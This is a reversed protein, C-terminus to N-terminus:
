FKNKPCKIKRVYSREFVYDKPCTILNSFSIKFVEKPRKIKPCDIREMLILFALESQCVSVNVKM